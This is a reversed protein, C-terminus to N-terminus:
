RVDIRKNGFSLLANNRDNAMSTNAVKLIHM